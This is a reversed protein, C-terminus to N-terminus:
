KHSIQFTVEDLGITKCAEYYAPFFENLNWGVAMAHLMWNQEILRDFTIHFKLSKNLIDGENTVEWNGFKAVIIDEKKSKM